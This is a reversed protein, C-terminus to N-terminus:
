KREIDAESCSNGYQIEVIRLSENTENTLMHWQNREIHLNDFINYVGLLEYDTSNKNITYVTARGSSIFWHESRNEHRQMSLSKGPEVVLEKVKVVNSDNYLVRYYGWPRETRRDAWKELINSSSNTKGGGVNFEFSIWDDDKFHELEPINDLKRDGGNAFIIHARPYFRKVKLIAEVASDDHDAFNIVNDVSKLNLLIQEREYYPLFSKGKKRSLWDDSNLGVILVEGLAKACKLYELHGSHLPDFGGTVVVVRHLGYQKLNM